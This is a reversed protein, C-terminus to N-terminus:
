NQFYAQLDKLVENMRQDILAHGQRHSNLHSLEYDGDPYVRLIEQPSIIAYDGYSGAVFYPRYSSTLLSSGVSYDTNPNQCGLVKEM